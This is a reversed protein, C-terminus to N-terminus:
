VVGEIDAKRRREEKREAKAKALRAKKHKDAYIEYDEVTMGKDSAMRALVRDKTPSTGPSSFGIAESISDGFAAQSTAPKRIADGFKDNADNDPKKLGNSRCSRAREKYAKLCVEAYHLNYKSGIQVNDPWFVEDLRKIAYLVRRTAHYMSGKQESGSAYLLGAEAVAVKRITMGMDTLLEVLQYAWTHDTSERKFNRTDGLNESVKNFENLWDRQFGGTVNRIHPGRQSMTSIDLDLINDIFQLEAKRFNARQKVMTDHKSQHGQNDLTARINTELTSLANYVWMVHTKSDGITHDLMEIDDRVDDVKHNFRNFSIHRNTSRTGILLEFAGEVNWDDGKTVPGIGADALKEVEESIDIIQNVIKEYTSKILSDFGDSAQKLQSLAEEGSMRKKTLELRQLKNVSYKVKNSEYSKRRRALVSDLLATFDDALIGSTSLTDNMIPSDLFAKAAVKDRPSPM